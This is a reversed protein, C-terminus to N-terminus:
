KHKKIAFKAISDNVQSHSSAIFRATHCCCYDHCNFNFEQHHYRPIQEQKTRCISNIRIKPPVLLEKQLVVLESKKESVFRFYSLLIFNILDAAKFSVWTWCNILNYLVFHFFARLSYAAFYSFGWNICAVLFM